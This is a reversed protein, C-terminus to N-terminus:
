EIYKVICLACLEFAQEMISISVYDGKYSLFKTGSSILPDSSQYSKSIIITFMIAPLPLANSKEDRKPNLVRASKELKKIKLKQNIYM